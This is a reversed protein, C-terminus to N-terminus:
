PSPTFSTSAQSCTAIAGTAEAGDALQSAVLEISGDANRHMGNAQLIPPPATTVPSSDVPSGRYGSLDRADAWIKRVQVQQTPNEPVGGRGTMVFRSGEDTCSTVIQQSSDTFNVPLDNVTSIPDVDITNINVTGSVGFQSSATIDSEPTLQPRFKLGLLGQTTIQINGGRGQVANAVIDSNEFGAIIPANITINGGNGTGGATATIKSGHRMLLLERLQLNINGGEGSQAVATISGQRDLVLSNGKVQVNGALGPGDNKVSVAAGDTIRLLPTNMILSGANGTPIAPLGFAAQTSPSLIEANSYIRSTSITGDELLVRGQVNIFESANVEVSGASGSAATSSGLAAGGRVILRGTNIIANSANGSGQTFTSLSSEAFALPNYGAIEVQETANVQITGTNGSRLAVAIIGSSDLVSLKKTSVTINGGNGNSASFTVIGTYVAPNSPTFGSIETADSVNLHINAGAAQTRTRSVIRAGDRLSLKTASITIDGVSGTSLNNSQILSGVQGNITTGTLTLSGRANVTIGGSSQSQGLNQLLVASGESLSIHQGQIQISGHNGSANLMSDQALRIDNFQSVTSYDGVWGTPTATLRVTGSKVSGVELHGSGNISAVGGSFNVAGGILALTRNVGAQLGVPSNLTSVQGFGTIDILQNGTGQVTIPGLNSGMQLGIPVNVTLLPASTTNTASFQGGDAFLVSSATSAVFSGGINLRANPGFLIGNPNLLYLSANRNTRILGDITSPNGGTVRAFINQVDLANNFFASGGTPVSFQSFSHYLNGGLRAGGDITFDVHNPSSVATPLTGDPAIQAITGAMGVMWGLIAIGSSLAVKRM